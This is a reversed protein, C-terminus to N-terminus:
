KGKINAFIKEWIYDDQETIEPLSYKSLIKIKENKSYKKNKLIATYESILENVKKCANDSYNPNHQRGNIVLFKVEDKNINKMLFGANEDFPFVPDDKSHILLIRSKTCKLADIIKLKAYKEDYKSEFKLMRKFVFDPKNKLTYRLMNYCNIACSILTVSDIYDQINLVCGAAYAGWSHGVIHIRCKTFNRNTKVYSICENLDVIAETISCINEGGSEDCGVCDYALVRYGNKALKNIEAFYSKFGAGIGHAFIVIDNKKFNNYYFLHAQIRNRLPTFIAIKENHLDPFDKYNFCPLIGDYDYRHIYNKKYLNKITCM